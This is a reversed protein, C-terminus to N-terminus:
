PGAQQRSQFALGVPEGQEAHYRPAIVGAVLVLVAAFAVALACAM